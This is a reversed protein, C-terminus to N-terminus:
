LVDSLGKGAPPGAGGTREQEKDSLKRKRWNYYKPHFQTLTMDQKFFNGIYFVEKATNQLGILGSNLMNDLEKSTESPEKKTKNTAFSRSM